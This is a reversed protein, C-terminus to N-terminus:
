ESRPAHDRDDFRRPSRRDREVCSHRQERAEERRRMLEELPEADIGLSPWMEMPDELVGAERGWEHMEVHLESVIPGDGLELGLQQACNLGVRFPVPHRECLEAVDVRKGIANM